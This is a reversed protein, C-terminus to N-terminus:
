RTRRGTGAADADTNEPHHGRQEAPPPIMLTGVMFRSIPVGSRTAVAVLLRITPTVAIAEAIM